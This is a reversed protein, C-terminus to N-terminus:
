STDRTLPQSQSPNLSGFQPKVSGEGEKVTSTKEKLEKERDKLQNTKEKATNAEAQKGEKFLIGIEKAIKNSEAAIDDLEKKGNRWDADVQLIGNIKESADINRKKLGEIVQDKEERIRTIELM